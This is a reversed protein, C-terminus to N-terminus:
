EIRSGCNSCFKDDAENDGSGCSQCVKKDSQPNALEPPPRSSAYTVVFAPLATRSHLTYRGHVEEYDQGPTGLAVRCLLMKNVRSFGWRAAKCPDVFFTPVYGVFNGSFGYAITNEIHEDAPCCWLQKTVLPQRRRNLAAELNTRLTEFADQMSNCPVIQRADVVTLDPDSAVTSWQRRLYDLTAGSVERQETLVRSM